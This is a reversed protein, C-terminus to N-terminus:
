TIDFCGSICSNQFRRAREAEPGAGGERCALPRQSLLDVVRRSFCDIVTALYLTGEWTSVCRIESTWLRNPAQDVLPQAGAPQLARGRVGRITMTGKRRKVYGSLGAQRM